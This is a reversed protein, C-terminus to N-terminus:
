VKGMMTIMVVLLISCFFIFKYPKTFPLLRGLLKLDYSKGLKEESFYSNDSKM